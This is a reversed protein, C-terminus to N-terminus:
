RKKAKAAKATDALIKEVREVYTETGFRRVATARGSAVLRERLAGDHKLRGLADALAAANGPECLLGNEGDEIIEVVGGARAAVVPRRALMGEVIVRGFPEPTISTHAVMDVAKMCAAVDRQFGLFHVRDGMRHRAVTEHLQAAYEDEGFLPAGVLVVHMDPHRTAAELLLHQGKWHALRSFSGVLWAHEPLGFRARLAAQSVNELADFPGASIGNFVVDVHQPTFGTLARFAQASADSNAIVRTIGFRACYKIAKLQKGGFHDGSVIDRLHWVVPKRALRGALAAVVMARQTNAYIVEARRARRAVNRVLAVLQKLAGASVGGQKRVGALAGQDLVDVRAGIEGLAARFPGDDFLLVDANARMHKMIELLSLEAGGLVGSQDLVLTAPGRAVPLPAVATSRQATSGPLAAEVYDLFRQRFTDASFREANARCARPAFRQPAREFEDVAAVIAHPTQEDFFLGTPHAHSTPELVTELAGGKGYAIVPTGCAQAEVVSIGFDEEAAFVFAKARRMRDHLVAFPQYGMIEVNPGAKARIKQMEPGDGIVVLKREPTRSFAEVILDIKKYPVMRSATLYFDDKVDNLSFGDVDVPPFIVAADRHYVKRIRRAIFASNAIFGDVANATRTDWNRIYHLIMRALLSKPGHTLNSQELYQHQLDWAYRIPSHVYSIHLQDPGTLVGKAVAHSSSIVLDYDSVDLQEIALPMLPLYSRYKTRAFPLKQIFSTTVPKGRVFARDDLFDVLSFLDADPFCAIIQELVREAGAYTVLWDHVIAVRLPRSADRASARAPAETRRLVADGAAAADATAFNLAHEALDRNM